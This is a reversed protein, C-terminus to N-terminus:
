TNAGLESQHKKQKTKSPTQKVGTMRAVTRPSTLSQAAPGFTTEAPNGPDAPDTPRIELLKNQLLVGM